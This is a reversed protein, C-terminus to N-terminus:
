NPLRPPASVVRADVKAAVDLPYADPVRLKDGEKTLYLVWRQGTKPPPEQECGDSGWTHSFDYTEADPTGSAIRVVDARAKWTRWGSAIEVNEARNIAAVVVVDYPKAPQVSHDTPTTTPDQLIRCANAATPATALAAFLGIFALRM